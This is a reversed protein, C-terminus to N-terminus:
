LMVFTVPVPIYCKWVVRQLTWHVAPFLVNHSSLGKLRYHLKLEQIHLAAPKELITAKLWIGLQKSILFVAGLIRLGDCENISNKDELTISTVELIQSAICCNSWDFGHHWSTGTYIHGRPHHGRHPTSGHICTYSAPLIVIAITM